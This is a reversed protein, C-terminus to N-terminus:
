GVAEISASFGLARRLKVRQEGRLFSIAERPLLRPTRCLMSLLFGILAAASGLFVPNDRLRYMCRLVYFTPSYGLSYFRHGERVKAQLLGSNATGTRRHEFVRDELSKRVKWGKMRAVIEMAADEGGHKMRLYGGTDEFCARRFLQVAGAVSDLTQDETQFTDGIKTYVIGGALGLKTDTEFLQLIREFYNTEFSIDADLNGIFDFDVGEIELRGRNFAIIKRGFDRGQERCLNVARIFEFRAAYRQIIEGTRDTSGDNVIVWRMPRVTQAVVSSITKEIFTEENHAPTIIVYNKM